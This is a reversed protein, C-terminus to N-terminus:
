TTLKKSWRDYYYLGVSILTLGLIQQLSIKGWWKSPDRAEVPAAGFTILISMLILVIRKLMSAISYSLAPILGLMHFALLTQAFHSVSDLILLSLISVLGSVGSVTSRQAREHPDLLKPLERLTVGGLLFLAGLLSCYLIISIKDPKALSDLDLRDIWESVPKLWRHRRKTVAIQAAANAHAFKDLLLDSVSYPLTLSSRRRMHLLYQQLSYTPKKHLMYPKLKPAPVDIADWTMLERGYINQAAFIITSIICCVLGFVHNPDFVNTNTSIQQSQQRDVATPLVIMFVGAMLPILSIYISWLYRVGYFIRYGAVILLPSLAKISSVTALPVLSTATLSFFKGSFQFLGLPSVKAFIRFDLVSGRANGDPVTGRTFAEGVRPWKRILLTLGLALMASIVFQALGVLLPFRFQALVLRTLQSTVSSVAYWVFCTAVTKAPFM